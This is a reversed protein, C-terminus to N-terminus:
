EWVRLKKILKEVTLQFILLMAVNLLSQHTLRIVNM